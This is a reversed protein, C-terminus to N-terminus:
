KKEWVMRVKRRRMLTAGFVFSQIRYLLDTSLRVPTAGFLKSQVTLFVKVQLEREFLDPIMTLLLDTARDENSALMARLAVQEIATAGEDYVAVLSEHIEQKLAEDRQMSCYWYLQGGVAPLFLLLLPWLSSLGEVACVGGIAISEGVVDLCACIYDPIDYSSTAGEACRHRGSVEELTALVDDDFRFLHREVVVDGFYSCTDQVCENYGISGTTALAAAHRGGVMDVIYQQESPVVVAETAAWQLVTTAAFNAESTAPLTQAKMADPLTAPGVPSLRLERQVSTDGWKFLTQNIEASAVDVITNTMFFEHKSSVLHYGFRNFAFPPSLLTQAPRTEDKATDNWNRTSIHEETIAMDAYRDFEGDFVGVEGGPFTLCQSLRTRWKSGWVPYVYPQLLERVCFMKTGVEVIRLYTCDPSRTKMCMLVCMEPSDVEISYASPRAPLTCDQSHTYPSLVTEGDAYLEKNFQPTGRPTPVDNDLVELVDFAAVRFVYSEMRCTPTLYAINAEADSDVVISGNVCLQVFREDKLLIALVGQRTTPLASAQLAPFSPSVTRREFVETKKLDVLLSSDSDNVRVRVSVVWETPTFPANTANFDVAVFSYSMPLETLDALGVEATDGVYMFTDSTVTELHVTKPTEELATQVDVNDAHLTFGAFSPEAGWFLQGRVFCFELGSLDSASHEADSYTGLPPFTTNTAAPDQIAAYYSCAVATSTERFEATAFICRASAICHIRCLDKGWLLSAEKSYNAPTHHEETLFPDTGDTYQACRPFFDNTPIEFVNRESYTAPASLTRKSVFLESDGGENSSARPSVGTTCTGGLWPACYRSPHEIGTCRETELCVRACEEKGFRYQLNDDDDTPDPGRLFNGDYYTAWTCSRLKVYFEDLNNFGVRSVAVQFAGSSTTHLASLLVTGLSFAIHKIAIHGRLTVSRGYHQAGSSAFANVHETYLTKLGLKDCLVSFGDRSPFVATVGDEVGLERLTETQVTEVKSVLPTHYADVVVANQPITVVVQSEADRVALFSNEASFVGEVDNQLLYTDSPFTPPVKCVGRANFATKRMMKYTSRNFTVQPQSLNTVLVCHMLDHMFVTATCASSVCCSEICGAEGSRSVNWITGSFTEPPTVMEYHCGNSPFENFVVAGESTVSCAAPHTTANVATYTVNGQPYALVLADHYAACEAEQLVSGPLSACQVSTTTYGPIANLTFARMANGGSVSAGFTQVAFNVQTLAGNWSYRLVAYAARNPVVSFVNDNEPMLTYYFAPNGWSVTSHNRLLATFSERNAFIQVATSSRVVALETNNALCGGTQSAGWSLVTGNALLVAFSARTSCISHFGTEEKGWQLISGDRVGYGDLSDTPTEEARIQTNQPSPSFIHYKVNGAADPAWAEVTYWATAPTTSTNSHLRVVAVAVDNTEMAIIRSSAEAVAKSRAPRAWVGKSDNLNLYMGNASWVEKHNMYESGATLPLVDGHTETVFVDATATSVSRVTEINTRLPSVSGQLGWFFDVNDSSFSMGSRPTGFSADRHPVCPCLRRKDLGAPRHCRLNVRAGGEHYRWEAGQALWSCITQGSGGGGEKEVVGACPSEYLGGMISADCSVAEADTYNVRYESFENTLRSNKQLFPRLRTTAPGAENLADNFASQSLPWANETCKLTIKHNTSSLSTKSCAADCTEGLSSWLWLPGSELEGAYGIREPPPAHAPPAGTSTSHGQEGVDGVEAACLSVCLLCGVAFWGKKRNNERM